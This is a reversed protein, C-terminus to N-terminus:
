TKAPLPKVAPIIGLVPLHLNTEVDLETRFSTDQMELVYSLGLGAGLGAAL